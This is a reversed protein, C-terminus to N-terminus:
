STWWERPWCFASDALACARRLVSSTSILPVRPRPQPLTRWRLKGKRSWHLRKRASPKLGGYAQEQLRHALIPIMPHRRLRPYATKAFLEQWLARLELKPLRPLEELKTTIEASM